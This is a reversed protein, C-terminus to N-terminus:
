EPTRATQVMFCSPILTAESKMMCALWHLFSAPSTSITHSSGPAIELALSCSVRGYAFHALSGISSGESMWSALSMVLHAKSSESSICHMTM